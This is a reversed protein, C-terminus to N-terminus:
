GEGQYWIMAKFVFPILPAILMDYLTHSTQNCSIGTANVAPVGVAELAEATMFREICMGGASSRVLGIPVNKFAPFNQKLHLATYFCTASFTLLANATPSSTNTNASQWFGSAGQHMVRIEPFALAQAYTENAGYACSVPFDMNSQGSLSTFLPLPTLMLTM